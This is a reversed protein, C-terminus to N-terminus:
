IEGKKMMNYVTSKGIGLAKSTLSVNNRYKLLYTKIIEVTHEKLTKDTVYEPKKILECNNFIINDETIHNDDSLVIALEVISKLERINGNYSHTCLKSLAKNSISFKNKYYNKIFYNVLLPIDEIRNRLPPLDIKLGMLRYYLDERFNGKYVEEKLNKHSASIIRIDLDIYENGGIRTIRKEELVRLLKKQFELPIEAIEDFFITGKNALELKGIKRRNAGTFAGKEYGFLESEILNFPIASMNLSVLSENMRSGSFHIKNAVLEKGTGTEGTIFINITSNAGRYILDFVKKIPKSEGIIDINNTKLKKSEQLPKLKTNERIKLVTEWLSEKTTEGKHLFYTIGLRTLQEKLNSNNDLNFGLLTVKSYKRRIEGILHEIDRNFKPISIAILKWNKISVKKFDVLSNYVTVSYDPNLELHYKLVKGYWEDEELLCIDFKTIKSM